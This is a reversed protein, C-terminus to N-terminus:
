HLDFVVDHGLKVLEWCKYCTDCKGPCKFHYDPKRKDSSLWARPFDLKRPNRLRPWMSLIIALNKPVEGVPFLDWRKTFMMFQTGPFNEAISLVDLLYRDDPCDGAVHWRFYEPNNKSLWIRIEGFYRDPDQRYYELNENWNKRVNPYLRFAKNAYCLKKCPVKPRCTVVPPLSINPVKGLKMNGESIHIEM